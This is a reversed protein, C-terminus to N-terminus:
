TNTYLFRNVLSTSLSPIPCEQTPNTATSAPHLTYNAQTEGSFYILLSHQYALSRYMDADNMLQNEWDCLQLELPNDIRDMEDDEAFRDLFEEPSLRRRKHSNGGNLKYLKRAVLLDPSDKSEEKMTQKPTSLSISSITANQLFSPVLSMAVKQNKFLKGNEQHKLQFKELTQLITEGLTPAKYGEQKLLGLAKTISETTVIHPFSSYSQEHTVVLDDNDTSASEEKNVFIDRPVSARELDSLVAYWLLKKTYVRCCETLFKLCEESVPLPEKCVPSLEEIATKSYIPLWRKNWNELSILGEDKGDLPNFDIRATDMETRVKNCMAEEFSVFFEDMEYAIPMEMRSLIGGFNKMDSKKLRDLNKKLVEYYVLIEYKSKNMLRARWEELRHISYRSLCHFFISKESASWYTGLTCDNITRELEIEEDETDDEASEYEIEGDSERVKGKEQLWKVSSDIHIRSGRIDYDRYSHPNLFQHVEQNFVDFYDAVLDGKNHGSFM